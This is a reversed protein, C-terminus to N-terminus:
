VTRLYCSPIAASNLLLFCGSSLIMGKTATFLTNDKACRRGTIYSASISFNNFATTLLTYRTILAMQLGTNIDASQSVKLSNVRSCLVGTSEAHHGGTSGMYNSTQSLMQGQYRRASEALTALRVSLWVGLVLKFGVLM